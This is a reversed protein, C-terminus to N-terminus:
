WFRHYLKNLIEHDLTINIIIVIIITVYQSSINVIILVIVLNTIALLLPHCGEEITLVDATMKKLFTLSCM